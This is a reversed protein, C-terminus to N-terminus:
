YFDRKIDITSIPIEDFMIFHGEGLDLCLCEPVHGYVTVCKISLVSHVGIQSRIVSSSMMVSKSRIVYIGFKPLNEYFM